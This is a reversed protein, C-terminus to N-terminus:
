PTPTVTAEAPSVPTETAPLSTPVPTNLYPPSSALQLLADIGSLDAILMKNNDVRVYYGSKTPTSDGVELVHKKGNAFGITITYAPNDLGFVSPKGDIPSIIQLASAQTAAAEASGQNAEAKTPLEVAWINKENRAVRM